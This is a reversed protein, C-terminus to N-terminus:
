GYTGRVYGSREASLTYRGPDVEEFVFHGAADTESSYSAPMAPQGGPPLSGVFNGQLRVMAKKLPEGALNTIQGEVRAKEAQPQAAGATQAFLRATLLVSLTLASCRM